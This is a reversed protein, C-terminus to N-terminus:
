FRPKFRKLFDEKAQKQIKTKDSTSQAIINGQIVLKAALLLMTTNLTRKNKM